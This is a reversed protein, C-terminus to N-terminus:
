FKDVNEEQIPPYIVTLLIPIISFVLSYIYRFDTAPASIILSFLNLYPVMFILTSKLVGYKIISITTAVLLILVALAGRVIYKQLKDNVIHYIESLVKQGFRSKTDNKLPKYARLVKNKFDKYRMPKINNRKARAKYTEYNSILKKETDLPAIKEDDYYNERTGTIELGGHINIKYGNPTYFRWISATQNLFSKIFIKPNYKLLKSWHLLFVKPQNEIIDGNFNANYKIFDVTKDNYNERWLKEPLIRSFYAQEKPPIKGGMKYTASVQQMPISLAEYTPSKEAHLIKSTFFNFSFISFFFIVISILFRKKKVYIMLIILSIIVVLLGNKRFLATLISVITFSFINFTRKEASATNFVIESIMYFLLLLLISYPIDKWLSVMLIGNIPYLAYLLSIISCLFIPAGNKLLKGLIYVVTLAGFFIQIFLFVSPSHNIFTTFKILFTHVLPHWESYLQFGNAQAWQNYSDNTLLGPYFSLWYYFWVGFIMLFSTGCFIHITRLSSIQLKAVLCFSIFNTFLITYMLVCLCLGIIFSPTFNLSQTNTSMSWFFSILISAILVTNNTNKKKFLTYVATLLLSLIVSRILGMQYFFFCTIIALFFFFVETLFKNNFYKTM